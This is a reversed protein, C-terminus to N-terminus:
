FRIFNHTVLYNLIARLPYKAKHILKCRNDFVKLRKALIPYNVLEEWNGSQPYTEEIPHIVPNYKKVLVSFVSQDYRHFKFGDYNDIKSPNDSLLDFHNHCIDYWRLIIEDNTKRKQIFFCGAYIQYSDTFEQTNADLFDFVDAKTYLKEKYNQQFVLIGSNSLKVQNVYELFVDKGKINLVCGADIYFLIDGEKLSNYYHKVIYSKWMWFGMGKQLLRFWYKHSYWKEFDKESPINISDFLCFDEAEKKIREATPRFKTDAFSVFIVNNM